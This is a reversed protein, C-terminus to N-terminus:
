HWVIHVCAHELVPHSEIGNAFLSFFGRDECAISTGFTMNITAPKDYETGAIWLIASLAHGADIRRDCRLAVNFDFHRNM